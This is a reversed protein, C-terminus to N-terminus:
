GVVASPDVKSQLVEGKSGSVMVKTKKFNDKLGKGEGVGKEIEFVEREFQPIRSEQHVYKQHM